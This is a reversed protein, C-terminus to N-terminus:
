IKTKDNIFANIKFAQFCAIYVCYKIDHKKNKINYLMCKEMENFIRWWSCKLFDASYDM